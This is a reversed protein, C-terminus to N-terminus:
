EFDASITVTNDNNIKTISVFESSGDSYTLRMKDGVAPSYVVAPNDLIKPKISQWAYLMAKKYEEVGVFEIMEALEQNLYKAIRKRKPRYIVDDLVFVDNNEDNGNYTIRDQIRIIIQCETGDPKKFKPCEIRM